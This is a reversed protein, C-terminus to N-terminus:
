PAEESYYTNQQMLFVPANLIFDPRAKITLSPYNPNDGCLDRQNTLSGGGRAANTIITGEVNLMTDPGTACNNIGQIIFSKDASFIGQIQASPAPCINAAAKVGKDININGSASFIATSGNPTTINGKITLDGKVLFVYNKNAPLTCVNLTLDGKAQYIGNPLNNPLTCNNLNTCTSVTTIDTITLSDKQAAQLLYNYSTKLNGTPILEPYTTGGVIWNNTSAQGQGFDAATDGTFPIGPSTANTDQTIAYSGCQANPSPPINSKFGNEVRADANVLQIWPTANIIAFNLSSINGNSCTAGTTNDASCSPGVTVSFSPPIANKPYIMAYGSPLNTYSITYTGAVLGTINYTGDNNNTVTGGSATMTIGSTYNTEANDKLKNKNTDVFVNGSVTYTLPTPTPTFTPTPPYATIKFTCDPNVTGDRLNTGCTWGTDMVFNNNNSGPIRSKDFTYGPSNTYIRFETGDYMGPVTAKGSANTTVITTQETPDGGLGEYTVKLSIGQVGQNTTADLVQMRLSQTPFNNCNMPANMNQATCSINSFGWANTGAYCSNGIKTICTRAPAQPNVPGCLNGHPSSWTTNFGIVPVDDNYVQNNGPDVYSHTWTGPMNNCSAIAAYAAPIPVSIFLLAASALSILLSKKQNM